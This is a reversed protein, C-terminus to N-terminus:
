FMRLQVPETNLPKGYFDLPAPPLDSIVHVSKREHILYAVRQSLTLEVSNPDSNPVERLDLKGHIDQLEDLLFLLEDLLHRDPFDFLLSHLRCELDRLQSIETM